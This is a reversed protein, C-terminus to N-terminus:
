KLVLYCLAFPKMVLLSYVRYQPADTPRLITSDQRLMVSDVILPCSCVQLLSAILIRQGAHVTEVKIVFLQLREHLALKQLIFPLSASFSTHFRHSRVVM